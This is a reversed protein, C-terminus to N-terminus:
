RRRRLALAGLALLALASPEPVTKTTLQGTVLSTYDAVSLGLLAAHGALFPDAALQGNWHSATYAADMNAFDTADIKGDYNTDGNIWSARPNNMGGHYIDKLFAVDLQAFDLADIVGDLNTDGLYTYKAIVGGPALSTGNLADYQDTTLCGIGETAPTGGPVALAGTGLALALDGISKATNSGFVVLAGQGNEKGLTLTDGAPPAAANDFILTGGTVTTGGTYTNTGSLTLVGAGIKKLGGAGSINSGIVIAAGAKDVLIEADPDRIEINLLKGGTGTANRLTLISTDALNSLIRLGGAGNDTANLILTGNAAPSSNTIIRSASDAALQIQGMEIRGGAANMDLGVPTAATGATGAASFAAVDFAGPGFGNGQLATDWNALDLWSTGGTGSLGGTWTAMVAAPRSGIILDLSTGSNTVYAVSGNVRGINLLFDTSKAASRGFTILSYTNDGVGAALNLNITTKGRAFFKTGVTILDKNGVSNIDFNLTSGNSTFRTGFGLTGIGAGAPSIITTSDALVDDPANLSGTGVVTVNSLVIASTATLTNNITVTGGRLNITNATIPCSSELTLNGAGNKSFTTTATIANGTFTYTGTTHNIAVSYPTVPAPLTVTGAGSNNFFVPQAAAYPASNSAPDNWFRDTAVTDWTTGTSNWTLLAATSLFQFNDVRSTGSSISVTGPDTITSGISTTDYDHLRVYVTTAGSIVSNLDFKRTLAQTYTTSSFAAGNLVYSGGALDNFTTGDTSYQIKFHVPGSSAGGQDFQIGLTTYSGLTTSFQFYDGVDWGSSNLAKSSGNGPYTTQVNITGNTEMSGAWTNVFGSAILGPALIEPVVPTMPNHISSITDSEFTWNALVDARVQPATLSVGVLASAAWRRAQHKMQPTNKMTWFKKTM